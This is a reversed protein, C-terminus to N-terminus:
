QKVDYFKDLRGQHRGGEFNTSFFIDISKIAEEFSILRSGLVLVNADNHERALLAMKHDFCLAARVSLYRNAVISMGVGSGCILIGFKSNDQRIKQCLLHAYDPYDVSDSSKTGLDIFNLKKQFKSIIRKKLEFGAHDCAIFIKKNM